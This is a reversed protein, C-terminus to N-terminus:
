SLRDHHLKADHWPRLYKLNDKEKKKREVTAARLRRNNDFRKSFGDRMALKTSFNKRHMNILNSLRGLTFRGRHIAFLLPYIIVQMM